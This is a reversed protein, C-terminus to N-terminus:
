KKIRLFKTQWGDTEVICPKGNLDSLKYCYSDQILKTMEEISIIQLSSGGLCDVQFFCIPYSCDRMGVNINNIIGLEERKEKM